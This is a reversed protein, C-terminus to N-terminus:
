EYKGKVIAYMQNVVSIYPNVTFRERMSADAKDETYLFDLAYLQNYGAKKAEDVVERTYHGYPFALANIEKDCLKELFRKTNVLENRCDDILIGSLDNHYYGHAGITAFPSSALTSIQSETMQQWFDEDEKKKRFSVIESFESMMKEKEAFNKKRLFEALSLNTTKSIYNSRRKFFEENNFQMTRTGYKTIIGLFDNWLIDYGADRIATIFFTIPIQYQEMLPLVYKYNNLYGDDFTICVNFKSDDFNGKFYDNLSIVHFYKKYFQLHAEFTKLKLFISNFRTHHAQCIGHYVVIRAGRAKQFKEKHMGFASRLDHFLYNRKRRARSFIKAALSM